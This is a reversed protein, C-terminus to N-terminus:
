CFSSKIVFPGGLSMSSQINRPTTARPEPDGESLHSFPADISFRVPHRPPQPTHSCKDFVAFQLM